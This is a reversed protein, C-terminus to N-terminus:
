EYPIIVKVLTGRNKESEILFEGGILTVRSHINRLGLGGSKETGAAANFGKGNDELEVSISSGHYNLRISM